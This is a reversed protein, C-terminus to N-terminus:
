QYERSQTYAWYVGYSAVGLVALWLLAGGGGLGFLRQAAAFNWFALAVSGYLVLRQRASLSDLQFSYERFLRYGFFAIAVFFAILLATLMIELVPGGGPIVTLLLAFLAILGFNRVNTM